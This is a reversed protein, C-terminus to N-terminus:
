TKMHLKIQWVKRIKGIYANVRRKDKKLAKHEEFKSHWAM